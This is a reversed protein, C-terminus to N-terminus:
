KKLWQKLDELASEFQEKIQTIDDSNATEPQHQIEELREGCPLGIMKASPKLQHATKGLAETEKAKLANELKPVLEDYTKKFTEVYEQKFLQDDEALMDIYNYDLPYKGMKEPNSKLFLHQKKSRNAWFYKQIKSCIKIRM